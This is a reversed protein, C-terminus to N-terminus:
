QEASCYFADIRDLEIKTGTIWGGGDQEKRGKLAELKRSVFKKLRCM